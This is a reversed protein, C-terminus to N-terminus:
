RTNRDLQISMMVYEDCQSWGIHEWFARGEANEKFLFVYNRKIGEAQLVKLCKEVLMKGLGKRRHSPAIALHDLFGRRGNHSALCAGIVEEKDLALFSMGKNRRLFFEFDQKGESDDLEIEDISEWFRISAEYDESRIERITVNM